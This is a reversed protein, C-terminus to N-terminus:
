AAEQRLVSWEVDPRMDECRVHGATVREIAPCREAPVQRVGTSWQSVLVRPVGLQRALKTKAGYQKLYDSLTM